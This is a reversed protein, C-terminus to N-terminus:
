QPVQHCFHRPSHWLERAGSGFFERAVKENKEDQTMDVAADGSFLELYFRELTTLDSGGSDHGQHEVQDPWIADSRIKTPWM